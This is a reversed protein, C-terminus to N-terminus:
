GSKADFHHAHLGGTNVPLRDVIQKFLVELAPKQISVVELIDGAPLGVDFVGLPDALEKLVPQYTGAEHRRLLDPLEPIEGAVALRLYLLAGPLNLAQLLDQLLGPYLEGRHGALHQPDGSPHHEISEDLAGGIGLDQRLQGSTPQAGLQGRKSISELPAEGGM